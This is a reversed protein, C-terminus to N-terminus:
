TDGGLFRTGQIHFFINCCSLGCIVICYPAHAKFAPYSLRCVCVGLYCHDRLRAEFNHIGVNGPRKLIVGTKGSLTKLRDHQNKLGYCLYHWYHSFIIIQFQEKYYVYNFM